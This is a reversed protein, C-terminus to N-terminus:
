VYYLLMYYTNSKTYYFLNYNFDDYDSDSYSYEIYHVNSQPITVPIPTSNVPTKAEKIVHCRCIPCINNIDLWKKICNECFYHKCILFYPNVITCCCITCDYNDKSFVTKLADYYNKKDDKSGNIGFYYATELVQKHVEM